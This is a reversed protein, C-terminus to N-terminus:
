QKEAPLQVFFTSGQGPASEVWVRGGHATVIEWVVALGLGAGGFPRRDTNDVRYFREFIMGLLEPPIGIGEDRVSIIVHEGDCRGAVAVIGGKPSYKVANSILNIVVERLREGDGRVAPLEEPCDLTLRHIPSVGAFQGIVEALLPHVAIDRFTYLQQGTRMRQLDIFNNVLRSLREAERYVTALHTKQDAPEVIGELLLETFGLVATLPTRMEHSVASIMEDKLREIEKFETIDVAIEIRVLRGDTWRVARDICRYWRGTIKNFSESELPPLPEGERVLRDSGYYSCPGCEGEPFLSRCSKEAWDDGFMAMGYRNMYLFRGSELDAVYVLANLSDFITSIQSFQTRLAEEGRLRETIDRAVAVGYRERDFSVLRLTIEAPFNGGNHRLLVTTLMEQSAEKGGNAAVLRQVTALAEAPALEALSLSLLEQRSYGLQRCASENADVLRLSPISLLFICDNSQDLLARFRELEALKEQLEPYYTKRLSREGLGIIKERLAERNNMPDSPKNM